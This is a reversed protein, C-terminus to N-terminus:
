FRIPVGIIKVVLIIFNDNENINSYYRLAHIYYTKPITEWSLLLVDFMGHACAVLNVHDTIVVIVGM